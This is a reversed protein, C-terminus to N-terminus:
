PPYRLYEAVVAVDKIHANFLVLKQLTLFFIGFWTCFAFVRFTWWINNNCAFWMWFLCAFSGGSAFQNFGKFYVISVCPSIRIMLVFMSFSEVVLIFVVSIGESGNTTHWLVIAICGASGTVNAFASSGNAVLSFLALAFSFFFLFLLDLTAIEVFFM